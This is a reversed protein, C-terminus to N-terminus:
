VGSHTQISLNAKQMVLRLQQRRKALYFVKELQNVPESWQQQQSVQWAKEGMEKLVALSPLQKAINLFAQKDGFKALLGHQDTRVLQGACAYDYAVIALNSAMAELVVNGFTEVESAFFFVDSSAYHEALHQGTLMGTFIADPALKQLRNKDPGDGVIVLKFRRQTQHQQLVRYAEIVQSINKEPSLRSVTLVVTTQEDCQWQQRLQLNRRTPKFLNTDVGRSVVSLGCRMQWQALRQLSVQSPVCTVETLQHFFRLYSKVIKGLWSFGFFGAFEDFSSHFGSSVPIYMKKAAYLAALGLPGETVIHVVDPKFNELVQRIQGYVPAGFQLDPYKPIAFGKVLIECDVEKNIIENKQKPRIILVQHGKTKLGEVLKYVSLAVGNIEPPWTESVVVIRMTNSVILQSM